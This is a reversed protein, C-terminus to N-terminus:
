GTALASCCAARSRCVAIVVSTGQYSRSRLERIGSVTNVAEEVRRTVDEEVNEPSAGPYVTQVVVVPFSVDPYLEVPLRQYSFLGLVLLAAMMMTAFVPNAVSVRTIWM